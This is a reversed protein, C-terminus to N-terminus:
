SAHAEIWTLCSARSDEEHVVTWGDPVEIGVPWLSHEARDNRLVVYTRDESDFPNTM